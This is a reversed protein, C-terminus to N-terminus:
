VNVKLLLWYTSCSFVLKELSYLLLASRSTLALTTPGCQGREGYPLEAIRPGQDGATDRSGITCIAWQMAEDGPENGREAFSGPYSAVWQKANIM